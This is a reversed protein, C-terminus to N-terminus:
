SSRARDNGAAVGTARFGGITLVALRVTVAWGLIDGLGAILRRLVRFGFLTENVHHFVPQNGM